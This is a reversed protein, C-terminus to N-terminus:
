GRHHSQFVFSRAGMWVTDGDMLHMGVGPALRSVAATAGSQHYTGNTSGLDELVVDWGELKVVAHARSLRDAGDAVTLADAQASTVLEHEFPHRGIVVDVILSTSVGDDWVMVGLPPRERRVVRATQQLMSIGCIVCYLTRPDNFHDRVCCVGEVLVGSRRSV